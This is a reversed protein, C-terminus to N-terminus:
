SYLFIFLDVESDSKATDCESIAEFEDLLFEIMERCYKEGYFRCMLDIAVQIMYIMDYKYEDNIKIIENERKITSVIENAILCSDQDVEVLIELLMRWYKFCWTGVLNADTFLLKFNHKFFNALCLTEDQRDLFSEMLDVLNKQDVLSEQDLVSGFM